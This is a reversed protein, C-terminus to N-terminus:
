HVAFQTNMTCFLSKTHVIFYQCTNKFTCKLEKVVSFIILNVHTKKVSNGFSSIICNTLVYIKLLKSGSIKEFFAEIKINKTTTTTPSIETEHLYRELSIRLGCTIFKDTHKINKKATVETFIPCHCSFKPVNKLQM